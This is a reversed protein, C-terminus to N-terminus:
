YVKECAQIVPVLKILVSPPKLQEISGVMASVVKLKGEHLDFQLAAGEKYKLPERMLMYSKKEVNSLKLNRVESFQLGSVVYHFDGMQTPVSAGNQLTPLVVKARRWGMTFLSERHKNDNQLQYGSPEFIEIKYKEKEEKGLKASVSQIFYSMEQKPNSTVKNFVLLKANGDRDFKVRVHSPDDQLISIKMERAFNSKDTETDYLYSKNFYHSLDENGNHFSIQLAVNIMQKGFFKGPVQNVYVTTIQQLVVLGNKKSKYEVMNYAQSQSSRSIINEDPISDAKSLISFLFIFVSTYINVNKFFTKFIDLKLTKM